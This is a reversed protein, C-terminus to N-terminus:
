RFCFLYTIRWEFVALVILVSLFLGEYVLALRNMMEDLQGVVESLQCFFDTPSEVHVVHVAKKLRQLPAQKPFQKPAGAMPKLKEPTNKSSLANTPLVKASPAVNKFMSPSQGSDQSRQPPPVYLKPSRESNTTQQIQSKQASFEVSKSRNRWNDDKDARSETPPSPRKSDSNREGNPVVDPPSQRDGFRMGGRRGDGVGQPTRQNGNELISLVPPMEKQSPWPPALDKKLNTLDDRIQSNRNDDTLAVEYTEKGDVSRMIKVSISKELFIEGWKEKSVTPAELLICWIGFNSKEFFQLNEVAAFVQKRHVEVVNGYDIFAAIVSTAKEETIKVRYFQQDESFKVVGFDGLHSDVDAYLLPAQELKGYVELLETQLQELDPTSLKEFQGFFRGVEETFM